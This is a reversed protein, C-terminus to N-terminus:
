RAIPNALTRAPVRKYQPLSYAFSAGDPKAFQPVWELIQNQQAPTAITSMEWSSGWATTYYYVEM